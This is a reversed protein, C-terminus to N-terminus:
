ALGWDFLDCDEELVYFEDDVEDYEIPRDVAMLITSHGM